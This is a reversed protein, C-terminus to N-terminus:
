GWFMKFRFLTDKDAEIITKILDMKQDSIGYCDSLGNIIKRCIKIRYEPPLLYASTSSIQALQKLDFNRLMNMTDSSLGFDSM